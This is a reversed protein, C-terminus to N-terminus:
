RGLPNQIKWFSTIAAVLSHTSDRAIPHFLDAVIGIVGSITLGVVAGYLGFSQILLTYGIVTVAAQIFALYMAYKMLNETIIFWMRVSSTFLVFLPISMWMLVSGSERYDPGFIFAFGFSAFFAIVFLASLYVIITLRYLNTLSELFTDRGTQAAKVLTPVLSQCVVNPLLTLLLFVRLAVSYIGLEREGLLDGVVLAGIQTQITSAVGSPIRPWADRMLRAMWDVSPTWQRISQGSALYFYVLLAANVWVLAVNAWIFWVMTAGLFVAVIKALSAAVTATQVAIVNHKALVQSTNWRQLLIFVNAVHVLSAIGVLNQAITDDPRVIRIAMNIVGITLWGSIFRLFCASGLIAYRDDPHRVLDRVLVEELGLTAAVRFLAVFAMAYNLLGFDEVGLYRAVVVGVFFSIAAGLLRDSLLWGVNSLIRAKEDKASLRNIVFKPLPFRSLSSLQVPVFFHSQNTRTRSM